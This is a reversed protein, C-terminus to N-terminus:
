GGGGFIHTMVDAAGKATIFPNSALVEVVCLPANTKRQRTCRSNAVAFIAVGAIKSFALFRFYRAKKNAGASVLLLAGGEFRTM